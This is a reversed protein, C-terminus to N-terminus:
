LLDFFECINYVIHFSKSKFIRKNGSNNFVRMTMSVFSVIQLVLDLHFVYCFECEISLIFAQPNLIRKKELNYVWMIISMFGNQIVFIHPFFTQQASYCVMGQWNTELSYFIHFYGKTWRLMLSSFLHYLHSGHSQKSTPIIHNLLYYYTHKNNMHKTLKWAQKSEDICTSTGTYHTHMHVIKHICMYM